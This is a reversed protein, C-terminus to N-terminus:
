KRHVVFHDSAGSPAMLDNGDEDRIISRTEYKQELQGNPVAFDSADRPDYYFASEWDEIEDDETAPVVDGPAEEWGGTGKRWGLKVDYDSIDFPTFTTAPPIKATVYFPGVRATWGEPIDFLKAM